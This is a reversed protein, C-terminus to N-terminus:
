AHPCAQVRRMIRQAHEEPNSPTSYVNMRCGDRASRPCFLKGYIHARAASKEFRWGNEEAVKIAERIHKNPHAM